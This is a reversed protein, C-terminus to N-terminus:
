EYEPCIVDKPLMLDVTVWVGACEDKFKETFPQYRRTGSVMANYSECFTDIINDLVQKGTSEIQLENEKNDALRSIFFLNLGFTDWEETSRHQTQTIYFVNYKVEPNGNMMDYLHNEGVTRINPQQLAIGQLTKVVQYLTAM